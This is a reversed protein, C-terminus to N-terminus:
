GTCRRISRKPRATSGRTTASRLANRLDGMGTVIEERDASSLLDNKYRLYKRAHRLLLRSHKVYRPTFMVYLIVFSSIVIRSNVLRSLRLCSM